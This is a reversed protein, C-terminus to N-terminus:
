CDISLCAYRYQRSTPNRILVTGRQDEPTKLLLDLLGCVSVFGVAAGVGEPLCFDARTVWGLLPRCSSTPLLPPLPTPYVGRVHDSSDKDSVVTKESQSKNLPETPGTFEGRKLQHLDEPTPVCLSARPEPHGKRLLRIRVWVVSLGADCHSVVGQMLSLTLVPGSSTRRPQCWSSLLRLKRVSRLVTFGPPNLRLSIQSDLNEGTEMKQETVETKEKSRQHWEQVLQSWPSRFPALTNHKIFNTRKSPPRRKYQEILEAEQESLFLDGAPCDPYDQPFHPRGMFEFHKLSLRIGGVRVGRYVLPIWFAMAWGKPLLLDWGSGWGAQEKGSVSMSTCQRGPQHVLLVPVPVSSVCLSSGPVLQESKMRNLDQESPRSRTVHDRVSADWLTSQSCHAPVGSLLLERVGPVESAYMFLCINVSSPSCPPAAAGPATSLLQLDPITKGRKQPLTIRPDRVTLGLVCGAPFEGSSCVGRLLSFIHSQQHHISLHTDGSRQLMEEMEEDKAMQLTDTLVLHALPGVLRLHTFEMSLDSITIGSGLSKWSEPAGTAEGLFRVRKALHENPEADNELKRKVGQSIISCTQPTDEESPNPASAKLLGVAESCGCMKLLEGLVDQKLAPHLWIWLQREEAAHKTAQEGDTGETTQKSTRPRWLIEVPGLAGAPYQDAKYLVGSGMFGGSLTRPSLLSGGTHKSTLPRLAGLIQDEPGRLELCCLYSVDQLVAHTDMARYSARYTKATSELPVTYGWMRSMHFRKAHWLHTELWKHKRQRRSFEALLNGHRRRACRSRRKVQPPPPPTQLPREALKERLRRPLRKSNHSMTRRRMHNPLSRFLASSGSVTGAAKLMSCVEAARAQAFFSATIYKPLEPGIGQGKPQHGRVWGAGQSSQGQGSSTFEVSRPQNKMKRDKMRQKAGPM